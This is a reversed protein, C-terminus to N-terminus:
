GETGVAKPDFPTSLSPFGMPGGAVARVEEATLLRPQEGQSGPQQGLTPSGMPGGAVQKAEDPTLPRIGMLQPTDKTTSM